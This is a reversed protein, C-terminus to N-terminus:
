LQTTARSVMITTVGLLCRFVFIYNFLSVIENKFDRVQGQDSVALCHLAGVALHVIKKGRLSEVVAPKRIHQDNGHGLRFYDGKGWTWVQGSRSLALSFQAGCEIQTVGSGNLKEVNQPLSCGESGGRGLKGFDGDGWSFVMGSDTLALTQADRSGCAVQVVIKGILAKV